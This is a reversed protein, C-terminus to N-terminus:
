KAKASGLEGIVEHQPNSVEGTEPNVGYDQAGRGKDAQKIGHFRRRGEAAGVGARRGWEESGADAPWFGAPYSAASMGCAGPGGFECAPAGLQSPIVLLLWPSPVRPVM